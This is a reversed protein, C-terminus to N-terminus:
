SIIFGAVPTENYKAMSQKHLDVNRSLDFVRDAPAQIFTTLHIKPM